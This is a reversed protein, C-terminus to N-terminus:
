FLKQIQFFIFYDDLKKELAGTTRDGQEDFWGAERSGIFTKDSVDYPKAIRVTFKFYPKRDITTYSSLKILKYEVKDDQKPTKRFINM